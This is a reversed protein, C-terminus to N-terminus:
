RYKERSRQSKEERVKGFQFSGIPLSAAALSGRHGVRGQDKIASGNRRPMKEAPEPTAGWGGDCGLTHPEARRHSGRPPAREAISRLSSAYRAAHSSGSYCPAAALSFPNEGPRASM